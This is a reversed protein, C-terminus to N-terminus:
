LWRSRSLVRMQTAIIKWNHNQWARLLSLAMNSARCPCHQIQVSPDLLLLLQPLPSGAPLSSSIRAVMAKGAKIRHNDGTGMGALQLATIFGMLGGLFRLKSKLPKEATNGQGVWGWYKPLAAHSGNGGAGTLEPNPYRASLPM